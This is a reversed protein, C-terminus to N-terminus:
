GLLTHKCWLALACSPVRGDSMFQRCYGHHSHQECSFKSDKSFSRKKVSTKSTKVIFLVFKKVLKSM